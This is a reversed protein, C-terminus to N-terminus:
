TMPLTVIFTTGVGAETEFVLSGAHKNVVIDRAISLGQGTGKGVQKTTFFPNFINGQVDAPIGNADDSIRIEVVNGVKRTAIHINGLEVRRQEEIAHAANVLINLFVQSIESANCAIQPLSMDLERSVEAVSKWENSSLTLTTEIVQNIDMLQKDNSGPHSFDRMAGVIKSIQQIGSLSQDIAPTVDEMLFELDFDEVKQDLGVIQDTFLGQTACANKMNLLDTMIEFVQPVCQSLFNLNNGIYQAPTNIEHAIGGALHGVAEWKSANALEVMMHQRENEMSKRNTVDRIIHLIFSENGHGFTSLGIEVFLENGNADCFTFGMDSPDFDNKEAIQVLECLEEYTTIQDATIFLNLPLGVLDKGSIGLIHGSRVNAEVINLETDTVIICDKISNVIAKIRLVNNESEEATILLMRNAEYLESSKQKLLKEAKQRAKQECELLHQLHSDPTDMMPQDMM